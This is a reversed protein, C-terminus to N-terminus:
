AAEQTPSDIAARYASRYCELVEDLGLEDNVGVITRHHLLAAAWDLHALAALLNRNDATKEVKVGCVRYLAGLADFTKARSTHPACPRGKADLALHGVVVTAQAKLLRAADTLLSASSM